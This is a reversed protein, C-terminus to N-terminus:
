QLQRTEHNFIDWDVKPFDLNMASVATWSRGAGNLCNSLAEIAAVAGIM